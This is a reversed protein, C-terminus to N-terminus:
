EGVGSKSAGPAAPAASAASAAAAPPPSAAVAPGPGSPPKKENALPAPSALKSTPRVDTFGLEADDETDAETDVTRGGTPAGGGGLDDVFVNDEGASEDVHAPEPAHSPAVDALGVDDDAPSPPPPAEAKSPAPKPAPPADHKPSPGKPAVDESRGGKTM